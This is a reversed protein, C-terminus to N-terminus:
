HVGDSDRRGHSLQRPVANAAFDTVFDVYFRAMERFGPLKGGGDIVIHEDPLGVGAGHGIGTGFVVPMGFEHAFISWPGGYGQGPWVVLRGGARGVARVFSQVLPASYPTRSGPYASLVDVEVDGFGHSELHARLADVIERPSATTVLRADLRATAIQPITYTRTGPGTYGASIGQINLGSGYVYRTLVERGDVDGAFRRVGSGALGPIARDWGLPTLESALAELLPREDPPVEVPAIRSRWGDIAIEGDRDYLTGIAQALRLAPSDVLPRTASHAPADVPGRGWRAGSARLEFTIFSKYGLVLPLEGAANQSARFYILGDARRLRERYREILEAYSQSGLIEDGEALFMVNVPLTGHVAKLARLAALWATDPGKPVHAGRGYLVAPAEGRPEILAGFPDRTWAARDGVARVDYMNYNVLTLPAGADFYAWVGPFTATEVTEVEHCGLARYRDAVHEACERMGTGDVSVSPLRVYRQLAAISEDLHDDIHRYVQQLDM